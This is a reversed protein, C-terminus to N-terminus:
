KEGMMINVMNEIAQEGNNKIWRQQDNFNRSLSVAKSSIFWRLKEILEIINNQYRFMGSYLESYSLRNPVVPVCGCLVSEAMCIGYTEQLATSVSIKSRNLLDYYEQKTKCVEKTKIFQWNSFDKQLIEKINDFIQPQKEPDLRHPFVVINEKPVSKVFEPYIPLGTVFIKEPSINRNELIMEKHFNTAVFIGDYIQFWSNELDKGWKAMGKQTLFDYKDYSGAHYVSYIKFKLDLADRIYALMELGPFWGELAFIIDGEKIGGKDFLKCLVQLQGAKYYNTNIVDLFSGQRIKNTLSDACIIEYSIGLRKFESQFWKLWQSSYREELPEIPLFWIKSM